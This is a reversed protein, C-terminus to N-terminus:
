TLAEVVLIVGFIVVSIIPMVTIGILWLPADFVFWELDSILDTKPDNM